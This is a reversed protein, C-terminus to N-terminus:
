DKLIYTPLSHQTTGVNLGLIFDLKKAHDLGTLCRKFRLGGRVLFLYWAQVVTIIAFSGFPCAFLFFSICM